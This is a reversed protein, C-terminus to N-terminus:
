ANNVSGFRKEIAQWYRMDEEDLVEELRIGGPKTEIALVKQTVAAEAPNFIVQLEFYANREAVGASDLQKTLMEYAVREDGEVLYVIATEGQIKDVFGRLKRLVKTPEYQKRTIGVNPQAARTRRAQPTQVESEKPQVRERQSVSPLRVTFSSQMVRFGSEEVDHEQDQHQFRPVGMGWATSFDDRLDQNRIDSAIAHM